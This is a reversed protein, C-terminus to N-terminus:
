MFARPYWDELVVVVPHANVFRGPDGDMAGLVCGFVLADQGRGDFSLQAAFDKGDMAQIM